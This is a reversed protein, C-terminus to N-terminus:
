VCGCGGYKQNRVQMTIMKSQHPEIGAYIELAAILDANTRVPVRLSM